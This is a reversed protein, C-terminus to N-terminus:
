LTVIDNNLLLATKRREECLIFSICLYVVTAYGPSAPLPCVGSGGSGERGKGERWKGEGLM